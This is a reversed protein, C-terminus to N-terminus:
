VRGSILDEIFCDIGYMNKEYGSIDPFDLTVIKKYVASILKQLREIDIANIELSLTTIEEKQPELFELVGKKVIARGKFDRANEILLKYFLLQNKYKWSKIQLYDEPLDWGALPKGTKYDIM